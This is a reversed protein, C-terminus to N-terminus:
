LFSSRHNKDNNSKEFMQFDILFLGGLMLAKEQPSAGAPFELSYNDANGSFLGRFNCGPWINKLLSLIKREDEASTISIKFTENFCTPACFNGGCFPVKFSYKHTGISDYAKAWWTCKCFADICRFDEVVKGIEDGNVDLVSLEQPNLLCCCLFISCKFPRKLTLMPQQSEPWHPVQPINGPFFGMTFERRNACCVRCCFSSEERAHLAAPLAKFELDTPNRGELNPVAACIKYKNKRELRSFIEELLQMDQRVLLGPLNELTALADRTMPTEAAPPKMDKSMSACTSLSSSVSLQRNPKLSEIRHPTM